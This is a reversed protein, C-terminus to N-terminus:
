KKKDMNNLMSMVIEPIYGGVGGEWNGEEDFTDIGFHGTNKDFYEQVRYTKVGKVETVIRIIGDKEKKKILQRREKM